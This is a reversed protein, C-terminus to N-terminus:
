PVYIFENLCMLAQCLHMVASELAGPQRNDVDHREGHAPNPQNDTPEFAALQQEILTRAVSAEDPSPPRGLAILFADGVATELSLRAAPLVRRSFGRAYTRISAHNMMALAQPAITTSPRRGIGQLADPADFLLMLPILRSRKVRFYVSRRRQGEDLSGPGFMRDDLLGSVSLMSDRIVEAELRQLSRRWLLYNEPDIRDRDADSDTGQMYVTSTMMLRHMAKLSWKRRVLEGALWDLLQPHSPPDGRAGFDSPTAVIGRGFHHQWLRNVMVRALLAGAGFEPDTIWRALAARRYSKNSGPPPEVHWRSTEDTAMTLARPFGPTVEVLKRLPDGRELVFTKEFFAPGPNYIRKLPEVGEGAVLVKVPGAVRTFCRLDLEVEGRVTFAFASILRYYDPQPIPDYMHDHCRACGISIGLMATGLTNGIDDLEDYREQEVHIKAIDANHIGAALFGTAMLALPNAPDMEDGALQWGVFRDYPLDDNLARIVFDRYHYASENDLDHEYGYSEAFRALDLWHRGWREGYHPSALLRDILKEYARPSADCVFADVEEPTPPIGILDLCARRILQRRGVTPNPFLGEAALRSSVFRDIPTRSWDDGEIQPPAPHSLSQFSWFAGQGEGRADSAALCALVLIVGARRAGLTCLCDPM